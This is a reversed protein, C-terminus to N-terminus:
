GNDHAARQALEGVAAASMAGLPPDEGVWNRFNHAAQHILMGLGNVTVAGRERAAALLPTTAPHYILDAVVQGAHLLTPDIPLPESTGDAGVVVGMGLPTANVVVDAAPIDKPTGVRGAPGALAAAHEAPGSSRNVVAVDAAGALGLSRAVARGAGGAGVVVCRRGAPDIGEDVRLADLFGPGDTNDGVLTEGRWYVCNAACLAEAAPTREDVAAAAAAKHPMTVSLGGLGLARAAAVAEGGREPPVEFVTFVWDASAAVFAANLIVPSLSHRAPWGILAAVRTTGGIPRGTV